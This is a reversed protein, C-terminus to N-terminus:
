MAWTRVAFWGISAVYTAVGLLAVSALGVYTRVLLPAAAQRFAGLLGSLALLPFLISSVFITLSYPGIAALRNLTTPGAGAIVLLPLVFTLGLAVMALIPLLRLLLGGRDRLRGRAGAVCWPVLMVLGFIASSAFALGEAWLLVVIWPALKQQASFADIKYTEGGASGFAISAEERDERRFSHHSTPIFVHGRVLLKGNQASVRTLSLLDTYPRLLDNPPTITRYTGAYAQLERDAIRVIPAPQMAMGRTLYAQVLQAAPTAFDVGEGGNALLVYGSGNRLSYGFVSSFSDISGNHGRFHIGKDPFTVNGLGYGQDFGFRAGLNSKAQEIRDVSQPSLIRHGDVTGRGLYFRVLQALERASANLSGAPRLVIHQYPTVSGDPAYSKSLRSALDATLAFDASTMRLPRLVSERVYDEFSQGTAREIIHGAVAPGANNYVPFLGPKWRSSFEPSAFNVGQLTTWRPESKVLVRTSIDPWGTTHEILHVLRVPDTREWRNSFRVDPALQSLPTELSLRRREVLTMVAIATFAKSISGARFPTDATAPIKRATDALGYGKAFVLQGHEVIGVSAGPIGRARFIAGLQRDLEAITQPPRAPAEAHAASTLPPALVFFLIAAVARALIAIMRNRNSMQM